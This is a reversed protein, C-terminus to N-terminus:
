EVVVAVPDVVDESASVEVEYEGRRVFQGYMTGGQVVAGGPLRWQASMATAGAGLGPVALMCTSGRDVHLRGERLSCGSGSAAIAPADGVHLTAELIVFDSAHDAAEIRVHALHDGPSLGAPDVHM